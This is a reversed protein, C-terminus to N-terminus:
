EHRTPLQPSHATLSRDPSTFISTSSASSGCSLVAPTIRAQWARGVDSTVTSAYRGHAFVVGRDDRPEHEDHQDHEGCKDCEVSVGTPYNASARYPMCETRPQHPLLHAIGFLERNCFDDAHPIQPEAGLETM